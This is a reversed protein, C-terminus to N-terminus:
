LLLVLQQLDNGRDSPDVPPETSEFGGKIGVQTFELPNRLHSLFWVVHVCFWRRTRKVAAHTRICRNETM